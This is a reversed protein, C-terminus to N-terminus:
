RTKWATIKNTITKIKDAHLDEIFSEYMQKDCECDAAPLKCSECNEVEEDISVCESSDSEYAPLVEEKYMNLEFRKGDLNTVQIQVAKKGDTGLLRYKNTKDKSPKKPGTAVKDDIEKKDITIGYKKKAFGYAHQMASSFDRHYLEYGTSSKAEDLDVEEIFSLKNKSDEFSVPDGIKLKLVKQSSKMQGYLSARAGKARDRIKKAKNPDKEIGIVKLSNSDKGQTVVYIEDGGGYLRAFDQFDGLSDEDLDVEEKYMNLEFPKSGGKNYVQVQIGGKDGKLRYSNTKGESPKSPGTAVKSDIEEPDITIGYLKKASKYAHQMASSFDKHYLEYKAEKLDVEERLKNIEAGKMNHKTILKTVASQSVFPIDAKFLQILAEKDKGVKDMMASLKDANSTSIKKDRMPEYAKKLRAIQSSSMTAEDIQTEETLPYMERLADAMTKRYNSM